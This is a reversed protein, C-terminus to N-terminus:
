QPASPSAPLLPEPLHFVALRSGMVAVLHGDFLLPQGALGRGVQQEGQVCFRWIPRAELDAAARVELSGGGYEYLPRYVLGDLPQAGMLPSRPHLSGVPRPIAPDDLDLVVLERPWKREVHLQDGHVALHRPGHPRYRNEAELRV